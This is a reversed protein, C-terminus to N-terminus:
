FNGVKEQSAVQTPFFDPPDDDPGREV